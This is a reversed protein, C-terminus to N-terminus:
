ERLGIYRVAQDPSGEDSALLKKYVDAFQSRNVNRGGLGYVWSSVNVEKGSRVLAACVDSFLPNGGAGFSLARDLM